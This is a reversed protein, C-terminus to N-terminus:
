GPISGPDRCHFCLTRDMPSGPFEWTYVIKVKFFLITYITNKIHAM